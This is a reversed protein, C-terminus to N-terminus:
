FAMQFDDHCEGCTTEEPAHMNHCSTCKAGITKHNDHPNPEASKTLEAMAAFNGHCGDGSCFEAPFERQRLPSEFSGSVQVQLEKVQSEITPKHCDLCDVGAKAHAEALMAPDNYTEYYHAMTSHCPTSCFSPQEHWEWAGIGAVVLVVVAVGAVVLARRGRKRPKPAGETTPNDSM